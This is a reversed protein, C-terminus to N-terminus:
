TKIEEMFYRGINAIFRLVDAKMVEPFATLAPATEFSLVGDFHIARLGKIFGEWDTSATNERSKTFTFPIQHLDGVGDNDHIHLVKLRKGLTVIFDEFDIGVLNAHGIDFCFGLVEAGYKKNMRDIRAAAKRADCCPGEVIHSGINTYINEICITVGLEKALPALFEIFEETKEWEAEESGLYRALKFGHIVIYRCNMFACIRMSKPAVVNRLFRNLENSGNPVYNPYPMHMQNIRVGAVESACKHPSFFEELEKQTKDFSDNKECRYLDSNLLYTNLSFDCCSFGVRRLMEFGELPNKDTMVNKTQVGIDLM